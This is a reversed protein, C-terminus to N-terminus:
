RRRCPMCRISCWSWAATASSGARSGEAHRLAGRWKRRIWEGGKVWPLRQAIEACAQEVFATPNEERLALNALAQLWQEVAPRDVDPLALDPWRDRCLRRASECALRAADAAAGTVMLTQLLAEVYGSGLLLMAALSGLMLVALLLFIFLSYVFDVV